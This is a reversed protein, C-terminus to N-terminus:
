IPLTVSVQTGIGVASSFAITGGHLEVLNKTLALGLGTGVVNRSHSDDAQEFPRGIRSLLEESMGTGSDTVTLRLEHGIAHLKTSISGGKPTFKVANSLLNILIQKLARRDAVLGAISERDPGEFRVGAKEMTLALGGSVEDIIEVPDLAETNLTYKGAEIKAIDLLDNILSLLHKGSDNIYNVYELTKPDTDEPHEMIFDSFGLIANMPTRLEHSMNALFQSKARNAGEAKEKEIELAEQNDTLRRMQDAMIIRMVM